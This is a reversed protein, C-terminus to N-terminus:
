IYPRFKLTIGVVGQHPSGPELIETEPHLKEENMM